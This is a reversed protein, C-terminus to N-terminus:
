IADNRLSKFVYSFSHDQNVISSSLNIENFTPTAETMAFIGGKALVIVFLALNTDIIKASYM